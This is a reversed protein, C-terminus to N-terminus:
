ESTEGAMCPCTDEQSHSPHYCPHYLGATTCWWSRNCVVACPPPHTSPDTCSCATGICFVLEFLCSAAVVALHWVAYVCNACRPTSGACMASCSGTPVSACWHLMTLCCRVPALVSALAFSLGHQDVHASALTHKCCRLSHVCCCLRGAPGISWGVLCDRGELPELTCKLCIASLRSRMTRLPRQLGVVCSTRDWGLSAEGDACDAWGM